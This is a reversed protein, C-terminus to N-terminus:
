HVEHRTFLAKLAPPSPDLQVGDVCCTRPHEREAAHLWSERVADFLKMSALRTRPDNRLFRVGVGGEGDAHVLQALGIEQPWAPGPALVRLKVAIGQRLEGVSAIRAGGLSVDTIRGIARKDNQQVQVMAECGLRRLRRAALGCGELRTRTLGTDAFELWVGPTLGHIASLVSGQLLVRQETDDFSIELFVRTGYGLEVKPERYFFLARGEALYFHNRLQPPTGFRYRLLVARGPNV